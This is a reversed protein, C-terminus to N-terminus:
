ESGDDEAMEKRVREVDIGVAQPPTLPPVELRTKDLASQAHRSRSATTRKSRSALTRKADRYKAARDRALARKRGTAGMHVEFNPITIGDESVVLWEIEELSKAWRPAGFRVCLWERTVGFACGHTVHTDCWSWFRQLKGIVTDVDLDLKRALLLVDPDSDLDKRMKIWGGASM